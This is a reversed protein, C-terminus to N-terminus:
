LGAILAENEVENNLAQFGLRLSHELKVEELSVIVIGIGAGRTNSVSDLFVRWPWAVVDYIEDLGGEDVIFNTLM